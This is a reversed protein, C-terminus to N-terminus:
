NKELKFIKATVATIAVSLTVGAILVAILSWFPSVVMLTDAYGEPMEEVACEYTYTRNFWIQGYYGFTSFSMIVTSIVDGNWKYKCLFRGAEALVGIVVVPIVHWPVADGIIVFLLIIMLSFIAACGPAQIRRFAYFTVGSLLIGATIQYCVFMVPHIAGLVCVLVTFVAYIVAYVVMWIANKKNWKNNMVVKEKKMKM